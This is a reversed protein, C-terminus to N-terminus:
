IVKQIEGLLDPALFPKKVIALVGLRKAEAEIEEDVTATLFFVKSDSIGDMSRIKELAEIGSMEPMEIDLLVLDPHEKEMQVIGDAGSESTFVEYNGKKLIFTAMKLNMSDDDVVLVKAM